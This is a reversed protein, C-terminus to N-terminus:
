PHDLASFLLLPAEFSQKLVTQPTMRTNLLDSLGKILWTM